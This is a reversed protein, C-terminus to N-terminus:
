VDEVMMGVLKKRLIGVVVVLLLNNVPMSFNQMLGM